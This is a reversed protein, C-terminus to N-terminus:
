KTKLVLFNCPIVCNGLVKVTVITAQTMRGLTQHCSLNKLEFISKQLSMLVENPLRSCKTAETVVYINQCSEIYLEEGEAAFALLTKDLSFM